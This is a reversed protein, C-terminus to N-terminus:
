FKMQEIEYGVRYLVDESQEMGVLQVGVPLNAGEYDVMGVPVVLCPLRSPPQSITMIDALYMALPDDDKSGIKFAPFPSTPMLLVDVSEFAKLYDQRLIERVQCAKNYYADYYGASSTYTGLM